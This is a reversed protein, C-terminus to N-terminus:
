HEEMRVAGAIYSMALVMFVLAQIFGIILGLILIFPRLLLPMITFINDKLEHSFLFTLTLSALITLFLEKSFINCFLRLGLSLPRTLFSIVETIMILFSIPFLFWPLKPGAFQKLYHIGNYRFGLVVFYLFVMGALGFTLNLDSTPSKLGPVLGILNSILIFIFLGIFLPYFKYAEPGILEDALGTIYQLLMEYIAQVKSPVLSPKRAIAISIVAIFIWVAWAFILTDPINGIKIIVSEPVLSEHGSSM